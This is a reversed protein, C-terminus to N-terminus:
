NEDGQNTIEGFMESLSKKSTDIEQITVDFEQVREIIRGVALHNEYTVSLRGDRTEYDLVGGLDDFKIGELKGGSYSIRVDKQQGVKRRLDDIKGLFELSGGDIVAVKDCSKQVNSLIHSSFFVSCGNSSINDIIDQVRRIGNPDLGNGPEDLILLDPNGVLAMGLVLRQKMGTSYERINRKADKPDLGVRETAKEENIDVSKARASMNIHDFGTRSDYLNYDEPVVGIRKRIERPSDKMDEGFIEVQGEIDVLFGLIANITTSKGAGNPGVFGLVEGRDISFTVDKVAIDGKYIKTLNKVNIISNDAM